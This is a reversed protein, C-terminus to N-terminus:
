QAKQLNATRANNHLWDSRLLGYLATDSVVGEIIWRERLFGERIFGLRELSRASNENRPDIDAEIRNLNMEDFGYNLLCTLAEHMYGKGWFAIDMDYGIEARRCGADLHFLTCCGIYAGDGHRQLGLRLYEGKAMAVLDREIMANAQDVSTWPATSMYQMVTPNARLRLIALADALSLPRLLLRETRLNLQDFNPM